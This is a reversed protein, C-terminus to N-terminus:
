APGRSAGPRVSPPAASFDAPAASGPAYVALIEETTTDRVVNFWRRCGNAHLWRECHRGKPNTRMYLYDAWEADSLSEAHAPLAIHAEGGYAFESEDRVGCWPCTIALV